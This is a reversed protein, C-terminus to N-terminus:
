PRNFHFRDGVPDFRYLGCTSAAVDIDADALNSIPLDFALGREHLSNVAPPYAMRHKRSEAQVVNRLARCESERRDRIEQWTDWVERMHQQYGTPRYASGRQTNWSGGANTIARQLCSLETGLQFRPGIEWRDTRNEFEVAELGFDEIPTLPPVACTDIRFGIVEGQTQDGWADQQVSVVLRIRQNRWESVDRSFSIKAGEWYNGYTDGPKGYHGIIPIAGTPTELRIDLWDWIGADYTRFQYRFSIYGGDNVDIDIYFISAGGPELGPVQPQPGGPPYPYPTDWRGIKANIVDTGSWTVYGVGDQSVSTITAPVVPRLAQAPVVWLLGPIAFPIVFAFISGRM